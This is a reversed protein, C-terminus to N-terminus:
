REAALFIIRPPLDLLFLWISEIGEMVLKEDREELRWSRVEVGWGRQSLIWGHGM